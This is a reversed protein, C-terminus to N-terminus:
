LYFLRERKNGTSQTHPNTDNYNNSFNEILKESSAKMETDVSSRCSNRIDTGLREPLSMLGFAGLLQNHAKIASVNNHRSHRCKYTISISEQNEGQHLAPYPIEM